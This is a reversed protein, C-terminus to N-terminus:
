LELNDAKIGITRGIKELPSGISDAILEIFAERKICYGRKEAFEMVPHIALSSRPSQKPTNKLYGGGHKPCTAFFAHDGERLNEGALVKKRMIEYDSQIKASQSSNPSWLFTKVVKWDWANVNNDHVYLVYLVRQLKQSVKMDTWHKTEAIENYDVMKIVNREKTTYLDVRELYRLPSVKLEIGLDEFDPKESSNSPIGFYETEVVKAAVGKTHKRHNEDLMGISESIESFRRGELKKAFSMLESESGFQM